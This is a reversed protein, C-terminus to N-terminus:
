IRLQRTSGEQGVVNLITASKHSLSFQKNGFIKILLCMKIKQQFKEDLVNERTHCATIETDFRVNRKFGKLM